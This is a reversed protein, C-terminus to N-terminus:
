FCTESIEYLTYAVGLWGVYRLVLKKVIAWASAYSAFASGNILNYIGSGAGIVEIACTLWQPIQVRSNENMEYPEFNNAEMVAYYFGFIQVSPDNVDVDELSGFQPYNEQLYSLIEKNKLILYASVEEEDNSKLVTRDYSKFFELLKGYKPSSTENSFNIGSANTRSFVLLFCFLLVSTTFSKM